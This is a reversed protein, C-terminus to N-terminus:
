DNKKELYIVVANLFNDLEELNDGEVVFNVKSNTCSLDSSVVVFTGRYEKIMSVYLNYKGLMPHGDFLRETHAKAGNKIALKVQDVGHCLTALFHKWNVGRTHGENLHLRLQGYQLTLEGGRGNTSHIYRLYSPQADYSFDGHHTLLLMTNNDVGNEYKEQVIFPYQEGKEEIFDTLGSILGDIFDTANGRNKYRGGGNAFWLETGTVQVDGCQLRDGMQTRIGDRLVRPLLGRLSSALRTADAKNLFPSTRGNGYNFQALPENLRPADFARTPYYCTLLLVQGTTIVQVKKVSTGHFLDLEDEEPKTARRTLTEM